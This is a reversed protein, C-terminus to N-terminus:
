SAAVKSFLIPPLVLLQGAVQRRPDLALWTTDWLKFLVTVRYGVDEESGGLWRCIMALASLPADLWKKRAWSRVTRCFIRGVGKPGLTVSGSLVVIWAVYEPWSGKCGLKEVRALLACMSCPIVLEEKNDIPWSQSSLQTAMKSLFFILMKLFLSHTREPVRLAVSPRHSM